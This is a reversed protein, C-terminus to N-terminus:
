LKRWNKRIVDAIEVFTSGGDNLVVLCTHPVLGSHSAIGSWIRVPGQEARELAQGKIRGNEGTAVEVGFQAAVDCLVGLCCYGSESELAYPAQPYMGSELAEIWLDAVWKKM